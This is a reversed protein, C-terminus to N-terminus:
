FTPLGFDLEWSSTVSSGLLTRVGFACSKLRDDWLLFGQSGMALQKEVRFLIVCVLRGTWLYM